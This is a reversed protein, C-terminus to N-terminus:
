KPNEKSRKREQDDGNKQLFFMKVPRWKQLVVREPAMLTSRQSSKVSMHMTIREGAVFRTTRQQKNLRHHEEKILSGPLKNESLWGGFTFLFPPKPRKWTWQLGTTRLAGTARPSEGGTLFLWLSFVFLYVNQWSSHPRSKCHTKQLNLIKWSKVVLSFLVYDLILVYILM